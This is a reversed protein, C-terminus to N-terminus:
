FITVTEGWPVVAAVVVAPIVTIIPALVFIFKQARDPMFEEKFIL